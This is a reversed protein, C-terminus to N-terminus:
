ETSSLKYILDEIKADIFNKKISDEYRKLEFESILNTTKTEEQFKYTQSKDSNVIEFQIRKVLSYSTAKGEKNKTLINKKYFTNIVLDFKKVKSKESLREINSTVIRNMEDDGEIKVINFYFDYIKKNKESYIPTYSCHQIFCFMVVLLLYNKKM